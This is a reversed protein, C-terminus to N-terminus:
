RIRGGVYIRQGDFEFSVPVVDPQGDRAVTALCALRQSGGLYAVESDSFSV